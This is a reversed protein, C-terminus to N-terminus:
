KGEGLKAKCVLGIVYSINRLGASLEELREIRQQAFLGIRRLEDAAKNERCILEMKNPTYKDYQLIEKCTVFSLQENAWTKNSRERNIARQFYFSFQSLRTAIAAASHADLAEIVTRGMDLYGQLEGENGPPRNSPLGISKEYEDLLKQRNELQIKQTDDSM